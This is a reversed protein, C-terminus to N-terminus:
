SRARLRFTARRVAKKVSKARVVAASSARPSVEYRVAHRGDADTVFGFTRTLPGSVSQGQFLWTGDGRRALTAQADVAHGPVKTTWSARDVGTRKLYAVQDPGDGVVLMCRDTDPAGDWACTYSDVLQDGAYLEVSATADAQAPDVEAAVATTAGLSLSAVATALAIRATTSASM